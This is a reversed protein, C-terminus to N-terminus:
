WTGKERDDWLDLLTVQPKGILHQSSQGGQWQNMRAESMAWLPSIGSHPFSFDEYSGKAHGNRRDPFRSVWIGRYSM